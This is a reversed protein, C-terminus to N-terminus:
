DENEEDECLLWLNRETMAITPYNKFITAWRSKSKKIKKITNKDLGLYDVLLRKLGVNSGSHPFYTVSHCENLVRRTDKGGTALHNTIVCTIKFHRGTELIENLLTYVADRHKKNSIVDIDDFIVCSDKFEDVKIPDTVLRDNIDIRKPKIVDLSEDDKLASFVFVDNNKFAIQYLKVYSATYTSKGSGSAGTIYLIQRETHTDPVQQFKGGDKEPLQLQTFSASIDEVDAMSSTVSIVKDKYKGGEIKALARGKKDLNLSM